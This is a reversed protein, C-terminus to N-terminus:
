YLLNYENRGFIDLNLGIQKCFVEPRLFKPQYNIYSYHIMYAEPKVTVKIVLIILYILYYKLHKPHSAAKSDLKSHHLCGLLPIM